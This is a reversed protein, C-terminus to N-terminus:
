KGPSTKQYAERALRIGIAALEVLPLREAEDFWFWSCTDTTGDSEDRLFGSFSQVHYIIRLGHHDTGEGHIVISDIGAVAGPTVTLGTEEVVERVMATAPDEGFALGGGPLTWKGACDPLKESLRCLLIQRDRTVLGYAAVRTIQRLKQNAM